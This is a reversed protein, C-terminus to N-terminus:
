EELEIIAGEGIHVETEGKANIRSYCGKVKLRTGPPVKELKVAAEGWAVAPAEGTEDELLLTVMKSTTGNQRQFEKVDGIYRVTVDLSINAMYPKLDELKVKREEIPPIANQPIDSPNVSVIARKGANLNLGFVDERTYANKVKLLDGVKIKSLLNAHTDWLSIRAWGTGDTVYLDAVAGLSGDHPRTFTRIPTKAAVRVIVNVSSMGSRLQSLPVYKETLNEGRSIVKVKGAKGMHVEVEGSIGKRTYCSVLRVRDGVKLQAGKVSQEDWFVVRVSVEGDAIKATAMRGKSGDPREFFTVPSAEVVIGEVTVDPMGPELESLPIPEDVIEPFDEPKVDSPNVVVRGFKGVHLELDGFIGRKVYGKVVRVIDGKRLQGKEVIKGHEGWLVLKIEGTKDTIILSAMTDVGGSREFRKVGLLSKVRGELISVFNMDDHLEGILVKEKGKETRVEVNLDIAVLLAAGEDTVLGGMEEKKRKVMRLVDDRSLGSQKIISDVIEEFGLSAM